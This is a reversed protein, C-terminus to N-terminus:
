NVQEGKKRDIIASAFLTFYWNTGCGGFLTSQGTGGWWDFHRGPPTSTVFVTKNLILVNAGNLGGSNAVRLHSVRQAYPLKRQWEALITSLATVDFVTEGAIEIDDAVNGKLLNSGIGGILLSRGTGAVLRNGKKHGVLINGLANGTLRDGGFASGIVNRVNQVGGTFNAQGTSLNVIIPTLRASYDLFDGGGNGNIKGSLSGEAQFTFVDRVASGALNEVSTFTMNPSNVTGANAGSIVSATGTPLGTVQLTDDGPGGDISVLFAGRNGNATTANADIQITDAGGLGQFSVRSFLAKDFEKTNGLGDNVIFRLLNNQDARLQMTNPNNEGAVTLQGTVDITTSANCITWAGRGMTGVVLTDTTANHTLGRAVVEPLGQGYKTWTVTPSSAPPPLMRYAGGLGGVVPTSGIVTVSRLEPALSGLGAALSVLNDNAGGGIVHFPNSGLNTINATFFVQNGTVVYVRRWDQPDLAIGDIPNTSGLQATVDTFASGTEGRFFLEGKTTGVFAVNTFASGGRWGGYALAVATGKLTGLKATIDTIVDGAFGNGASPNADEYVGTFGLLMLRPDVSNLVFPLKTFNDFTRDAANLGSLNPAGIANKLIVVNSPRFAGGAATSGDAATGNLSFHTADIVTVYYNSDNLSKYTGTLSQISVQDGTHLHHPVFTTIVVPNGATGSANVIANSKVRNGGGLYAGSTTGDSGNLSFHNADLFTIFWTSDAATNGQVGSIVVRDGTQLGHNPSTIIIPAAKTAGTIAHHVPTLNVNANNFLNRYFSSFNDSLSYGIINGGGLSTNDVAQFQGDGGTLDTWTLSGSADQHPSGTDQTGAFIVQNSSDYAVSSVENTALNGNFSNWAITAAPSQEPGMPEIQSFPDRSQDPEDRAAQEAQAPQVIQPCQVALDAFLVGAQEFSTSLRLGTLTAEARTM